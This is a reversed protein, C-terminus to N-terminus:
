NMRFWGSCRIVLKHGDKLTITLEDSIYRRESAGEAPPTIKIMLKIHSGEQEQSEIEMFGNRSTASEIEAVKDYNSRILNERLVAEGPEINQLIYRPNSVEYTPKATYRVLLQGGQPHDTSIQIVGANFQELKQMDVEPKLTFQTAKENADFPVSITKNAVTVSKISFAQGDLSTVALEPMGANEQDLRLDVTEPAVSVKVTVNAKLELQARATTPDSSLIYLHKTVAGKTAGATFTVEVRGMQGPEIPVPEKLPISHRKGDKILVPLSCGCTSQVNSILLTANGKNAFEYDAVHKTSPGMDGFDHTAKTLVIKPTKGTEAVREKAEAPEQVKMTPADVAGKELEASPEITQSPTRTQEPQCGATMLIASVIVCAVSLNKLMKM